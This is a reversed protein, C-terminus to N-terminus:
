QVDESGAKYKLQALQCAGPEIDDRVGLCVPQYLAGGPYAYLYRVEVISGPRPIPQNAPITVNGVSVSKGRDMLALAVSRKTGNVKVVLCSATATFKLKVQDGAALGPTYPASARKFVAGEAKALRLDALMKQKRAALRTTEVPRIAGKGAGALMVGLADLRLHYNEKRLDAGDYELLDFAFYTEGVAEGDMLWQGPGVALAHRAINEPLAVALGKRNIGVVQGGTKQILIRKGDFKEQMWFDSDALLRAAQEQDIPELLQPFVGTALAERETNQYPAADQGPAYGKAMKESVLKDYVKLAAQYDVPGATKSGTQLTTGRRGFAFNVVFGDGKAQIEAQYVKDSGGQRFYLTASKGPAQATAQTKAM